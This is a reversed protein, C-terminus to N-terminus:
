IVNGATVVLWEDTRADDNKTKALTTEPTQGYYVAPSILSQPLFSRTERSAKADSSSRVGQVLLIGLWALIIM